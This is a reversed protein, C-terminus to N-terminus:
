NQWHSIAKDSQSCKRICKGTPLKEKKAKTIASVNFNSAHPVIKDVATEFNHNIFGIIKTWVCNAVM